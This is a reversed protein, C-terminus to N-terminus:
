RDTETEGEVIESGDKWHKREGKIITERWWPMGGLATQGANFPKRSAVRVGSVFISMQQTERVGM